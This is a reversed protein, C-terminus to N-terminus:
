VMELEAIASAYESNVYAEATMLDMDYIYDRTDGLQTKLYDYGKALSIPYDFVTYGDLQDSTCSVNTTPYYSAMGKLAAIEDATLDTETPPDLAWETKDIISQSADLKSSDVMRVLKGKEADIFDAIYQQGSITINGGSTVPIANLTYPLAASTEIYPQYDTATSGKELQIQTIPDTYSLVNWNIKKIDNDATFHVEKQKRCELLTSEADTDGWYLRLSLNSLAGGHSFTYTGKPIALAVNLKSADKIDGISWLNKGCVKISPNVVAKIEQPYDPNPSSIGGVYPEYSTSALGEEIQPYITIGNVTEGARVRYMVFAIGDRNDITANKGNATIGTNSATGFHIEVLGTNTGKLTYKKSSDLIIKINDNYGGILFFSAEATATGNFVYTGDDNATCTVGNTTTTKLTTHMLNKGSYQQQSSKGYVMLDVIRGDDSDPLSTNGQSSAYFKNIKGDKLAKTDEKLQSVDTDLQTYNEPISALTTKGKKEIAEQQKTSEDTIAKKKEDGLTGVETKIRAAANKSDLADSASKAASDSLAKMSVQLNKLEDLVEEGGIDEADVELGELVQGHGLTSNWEPTNNGDSDTGFACVVFDVTGKYAVVSRRILWDFEIPDEGATVKTIPFVNKDGNANRFNVRWSLESLDKGNDDYRGDIVIHKVEVADDSEVGFLLEGEPIVVQRTKLDIHISNDGEDLTSLGLAEDLSLAM